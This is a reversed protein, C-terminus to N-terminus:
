ASALVTLNINIRRLLTNVVCKKRADDLIKFSSMVYLDISHATVEEEPSSQYGM